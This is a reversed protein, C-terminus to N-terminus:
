HQRGTAPTSHNTAPTRHTTVTSLATSLTGPDLVKPFTTGDGAKLVEKTVGM